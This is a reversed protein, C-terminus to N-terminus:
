GDGTGTATSLASAQGDALEGAAAQPVAGSRAWDSATLPADMGRLSVGGSQRLHRDGLMPRSLATGWELRLQALPERLTEAGDIQAAYRQLVLWATEIVKANATQRGAEILSRVAEAPKGALSPALAGEITQLVQRNCAELTDRYSAKGRSARDLLEVMAKSFAFRLGIQRVIQDGGEITVTRQAAMAMATILNCAAEFDFDPTAVQEGLAALHERAAAPHSALQALVELCQAMLRLRASEPFRESMRQLEQRAQALGDSQGAEFQLAGLLVLCQADFLRSGLGLQVCRELLPLAADPEGVYFALMGLRQLRSISHPTQGCAQEYAKLAEDFQGLEAHARGLTDLADTYAPDEDLQQRLLPVAKHPLGMDLPVRALGLQAWPKPQVAMVAAYLRTAEDFQALKLLLEAGVRAAFLWYDDRAAFREVCRRAATAFDRVEIAQYIDQLVYKRHRAQSLRESLRATAFPKRLYGDLSAEAAETVQSYTTEATVMIFITAFPLLSARRLEDLLDQGTTTEQPFVQECMVIDFTRSELHRRADAVRLTTVIHRVGLDRLQGVVISRATTNADVVLASADQLDARQLTLPKM